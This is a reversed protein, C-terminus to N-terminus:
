SEDNYRIVEYREKDAVVNVTNIASIDVNDSIFYDIISELNNRIWDTVYIQDNFLQNTASSMSLLLQDDELDHCLCMRTHYSKLSNYRIYHTNNNAIIELQKMNNKSRIYQGTRCRDTKSAACTM